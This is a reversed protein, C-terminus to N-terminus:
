LTIIRDALPLVDESFAELLILSTGRDTMKLLETTLWQRMELDARSLINYLILISPNLFKWRYCLIKFRNEDTLNENEITSLESFFERDNLVFNGGSQYFGFHSIRQIAPLLINDRISLNPFYEANLSDLGWFVIRKRSLVDPSDYFLCGSKSEYLTQRGSIGLLANRIEYQQEQNKAQVYVTEGPYVALEKWTGDQAQWSFRHADEPAAPKTSNRHTRSTKWDAIIKRWYHEAETPNDYKRIIQGGQMLYHNGALNLFYEPHNDYILFAIGDKQLAAILALLRARDNPSCISSLNGLVLMSANRDALCIMRFLVLDITTCDKVERGPELDLGYKEFLERTRIQLAQQNLRVKKLNNDRLLFLTEALTLSPILESREDVYYINNKEFVERSCDTQEEGNLRLSGSIIKGNGIFLSALIRPTADWGWLLHSEGDRFMLHLNNLKEHSKNQIYLNSCDFFAHKM